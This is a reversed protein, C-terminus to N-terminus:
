PHKREFLISKVEPLRRRSVPIETGDQLVLNNSSSLREVYNFHVLHSKHVRQFVRENLMAEIDSLTRSALFKKNSNLYIMTYNSDAECRVIESVKFHYEGQKTPIILQLNNENKVNLNHRLNELRARMLAKDPIIFYREVSKKLEFQDIPKLLYDLASYRIAQIAYESYSTIFIVEFSIDKLQDLIDFGSLQPMRIDMFVLEPLLVKLENKAKQADQFVGIIEITEGFQKELSASLESLIFPDDDILCTRIKTSM